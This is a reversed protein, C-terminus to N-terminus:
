EPPRQNFENQERVRDRWMKADFYVHCVPGAIRPDILLEGLNLQRHKEKLEEYAEESLITGAPQRPKPGTVLARAEDITLATSMDPEEM